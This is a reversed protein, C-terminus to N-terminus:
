KKGKKQLYEKTKQRVQEITALADELSNMEQVPEQEIMAAVTSFIEPFSIKGRLFYEVAVENATDLIAGSNKGTHLVHYAMTISPFKRLDVAAFDLHRLAAFDVAQMAHDLREPYALAYLIPIRMDPISLQAIISFDRFEVMSHVISQPHILVDIQEARLNFLYAAEIIELAKNMLTASDITIKRGMQWVPHLSAEQITIGPFDRLKRKWFPGGSATLIVRRLSDRRGYALCQFIASQESDIPLIEGGCRQQERRILEGGVVLTEKNALCLRKKLSIAQLTARLAATGNIAAVITDVDPHCVIESLGEEGAVITLRPFTERLKAANNHSKVSVIQPSFEEVQLALRSINEGAALATVQFHERHQRIVELTSTGISGTSGLLAVTRHM